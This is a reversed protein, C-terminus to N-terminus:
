RVGRRTLRDATVRAMYRLAVALGYAALPWAVLAVFVMALAYGTM